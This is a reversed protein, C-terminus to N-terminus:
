SGPKTENCSNNPEVELNVRKKTFCSVLFLIKHHFLWQRGLLSKEIMGGM